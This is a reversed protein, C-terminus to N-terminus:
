RPNIFINGGNSSFLSGIYLANKPVNNVHPKVASPAANTNKIGFPSCLFKNSPENPKAPPTITAADYQDKNAGHM